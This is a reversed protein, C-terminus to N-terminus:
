MGDLTELLQDLKDYSCNFRATVDQDEPDHQINFMNGIEALPQAEPDATAALQLMALGGRMLEFVQQTRVNDSMTLTLDGAVSDGADNLSLHAQQVLNAVTSPPGGAHSVSVLEPLGSFWAELLTGENPDDSTLRVNTDLTQDIMDRTRQPDFSAVLYFSGTDPNKPMACYIRNPQGPQEETPLSHVIVKERYVSSDYGPAALLLGNINGSTPGIDSVLAFDGRLYGTGFLTTQGLATRLDIGVTESLEDIVEDINPEEIRVRDLITQGLRSQMLRSPNLTVTFRADAPVLTPEAAIAPLSVALSAAIVTTALLHKM